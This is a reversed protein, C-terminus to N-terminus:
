IIFYFAVQAIHFDRLLEALVKCLSLPVSFLPTLEPRNGQTRKAARGNADRKKELM